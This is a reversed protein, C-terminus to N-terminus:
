VLLILLLFQILRSQHLAPYHYFKMPLLYEVYVFAVFVFEKISLSKINHYLNKELKAM